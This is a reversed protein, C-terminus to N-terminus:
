WCKLYFDGYLVRFRAGRTLIVDVIDVGFSLSKDREEGTGATERTAHKKSRYQRLNKEGQLVLNCRLDSLVLRFTITSTKVRQEVDGLKERLVLFPRKPIQHTHFYFSGTIQM